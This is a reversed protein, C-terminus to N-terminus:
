IRSLRYNIFALFCIIILVCQIQREPFHVLGNIAIMLIGALCMTQRNRILVYILRSLALLLLLTLLYGIEFVLQLVWNHATKYPFSKMESMPAFLVKYTGIGWGTIPKKNTLEITRIWVHGRGSSSKISNAYFKNKSIGMFIFVFLCILLLLWAVRKDKLYMYTITFIGIGTSFLTWMSNCFFSVVMPFILNLPNISILFASLVVSFSGMQMHHGIAGFCKFERGLGFNLLQDCGLSQMIMLFVNLFLLCQLAKFIIIWDEIKTCLIYFYCCAVVLIYATFSVFPAASFFCNIFTSIAIIRITWLTKIFLTYFGFFGAILVLMFWKDTSPNSIYFDIPPILSLIVILILVLYPTIKRM